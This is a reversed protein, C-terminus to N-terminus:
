GSTETGTDVDTNEQNSLLASKISIGSSIITALTNYPSYGRFTIGNSDILLPENASRIISYTGDNFISFIGNGLQLKFGDPMVIAGTGTMTGGALPLFPGTGGGSGDVYAKTVFNLQLM